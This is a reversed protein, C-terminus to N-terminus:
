DTRIAGVSIRAWCCKLVNVERKDEFLLFRFKDPLPKDSEIYKIIDRKENDTDLSAVQVTVDAVCKSMDKEDIMFTGTFEKFKGKVNSIMMHRVSFGIYTHADDIVYKDASFAFSSFLFSVAAAFMFQKLNRLRM